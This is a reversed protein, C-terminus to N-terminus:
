KSQPFPTRKMKEMKGKWGEEDQRQREKEREKGNM